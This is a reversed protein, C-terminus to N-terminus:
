RNSWPDANLPWIPRRVKKYPLAAFDFAIAGPGAIYFVAKAIPGFAANFHQSSKVVVLRKEALDVGHAAFLDLGFAQGRVSTLVVDIECGRGATRVTAVDGMPARATGFSQSSNRALHRVECDLDLPKGSACGTKGGVRLPLRAGLGADFCTRVTMPDYLPGLAAPGVARALLAELVFTSDGPAGGGPNDATDALVVPWGNVALAKEIADGLSLHPSFTRGRLSYLERGLREALAGGKAAGATEDTIVLVCTGLDPVDGWPFGHALSISLIGDQGELARMRAVFGRMPERLTHYVSIMRCDFISKVPRIRGAAAAEALDALDYAREMFDTHPYEKFCILLDANRMMRETMHCHPDLTAGVVAKPGAKARIRELLDGECDEYGEAVMAGHLGLLVIDVPMAAELDGLLEDRLAEYDRRVTIGAPEAFACLGEFVTWGRERGRQRAVCLPATFLTPQEPHEGAHYLGSAEYSARSTPIPSFTNTETALTAAFVRM